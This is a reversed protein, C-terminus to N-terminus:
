NGRKCSSNCLQSFSKCLECKKDAAKVQWKEDKFGANIKSKGSIHLFCKGM